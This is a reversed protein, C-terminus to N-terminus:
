ELQGLRPAVKTVRARKGITFRKRRGAGAEGGGGRGVSFYAIILTSADLASSSPITVLRAGGGGGGGEGRRKEGCIERLFIHGLYCRSSHFSYSM